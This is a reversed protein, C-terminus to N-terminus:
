VCPKLRDFGCVSLVSLHDFDKISLPSEDDGRRIALKLTWGMQFELDCGM